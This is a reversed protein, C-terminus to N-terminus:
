SRRAPQTQDGSNPLCVGAGQRFVLFLSNFNKSHYKTRSIELRQQGAFSDLLILEWTM